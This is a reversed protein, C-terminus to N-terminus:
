PKVGLRERLTPGGDGYDLDTARGQASLWLDLRDSFGDHRIEMLRRSGGIYWVKGPGCSTSARSALKVDTGAVLIAAELKPEFVAAVRAIDGAAKAECFQQVLARLRDAQEGERMELM